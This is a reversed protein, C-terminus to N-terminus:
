VIGCPQCIAGCSPPVVETFAAWVHLVDFPMTAPPLPHYERYMWVVAMAVVAESYEPQWLPAAAPQKDWCSSVYLGLDHLMRMRSRHPHIRSHPTPLGKLFPQRRVNEPHAHPQGPTTATTTKLQRLLERHRAHAWSSEVSRVNRLDFGTEPSLASARERQIM